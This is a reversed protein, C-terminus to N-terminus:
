VGPVACFVDCFSWMYCFLPHSPLCHFGPVESEASDLTSTARWIGEPGREPRSQAWASEEAQAARAEPPSGPELLLHSSLLVSPPPLRGQEGSLGEHAWLVGSGRRGGAWPQSCSGERQGGPARCRQGKGGGQRLEPFPQMETEEDAGNPHLTQVPFKTPYM